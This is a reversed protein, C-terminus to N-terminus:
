SGQGSSQVCQLDLKKILKAIVIAATKYNMPEKFDGMSVAIAPLGELSAVNAAGVTGSFLTDDGLNPGRNIGSVVLDPPADMFHRFALHACDAPTGAVSYIGEEHKNVKLPSGLTLAASSGSREQDPAIVTLKHVKALEERLAKLGPAKYGDDNTLLLSLGM